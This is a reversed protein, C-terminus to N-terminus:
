FIGGISPTPVWGDPQEPLTGKLHRITTPKVGSELWRIAEAVGEEAAQRLTLAIVHCRCNPRVPTTHTIWLPDDARYVATGSLGRKEMRLHSEETRGDHVAAWMRYPFQGAVIPHTLVEATGAAYARAVGDRYIMEVVRPSLASGSKAAAEQFQDLTGGTAVDTSLTDRLRSVAADTLNTALFAADRQSARAAADLGARDLLGRAALWRSATDTVPWEPLPTKPLSRGIPSATEKGGQLRHRLLAPALADTLRGTLLAAVSRAHAEATQVPPRSSAIWDLLEQWLRALALLDRPPNTM